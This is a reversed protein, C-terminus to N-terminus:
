DDGNDDNDDDYLILKVCNDSLVLRSSTNTEPLLYYILRRSFWYTEKVDTPQAARTDPLEAVGDLM